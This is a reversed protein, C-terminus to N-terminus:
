RPSRPNGACAPVQQRSRHRKSTSGRVRFTSVVAELRRLLVPDDGSGYRLRMYLRSVRWIEPAIDPRLQAIRSAYDRPGEHQRRHLGARALRSCYRRYATGIRDDPRQRATLKPLWWAAAAILALSAVLLLLLSRARDQPLDLARLLGLQSAADFGVVWDNWSNNVADWALALPYLWHSGGRVLLPLDADDPLAAALGSEIRQPAVAATPDVRVWGRGTIWVESWAHADSQRVIWYDGLPNAEGGQYGTVVRAPIGAARMLLTFSSAYLECFGRRSRFLFQDNPHRGLVPPTLTYVFPQERFMALARQVIQMPALGQQQWAMGLARTRPDEDDPYRLTARRQQRNLTSQFGFRLYSDQRYRLLETVDHNSLLQRSATMRANPPTSAPMDLAFLWRGQHPELNVTYRTTPGEPILPQPSGTDDTYVTWRGSRYDQLVPGRWYLDPRAPVPSLFRVRFAVAASQSLESISGPSMSDSVGTTATAGPAPIGWLPGPLRPVLLFLVVAVPIAQVVMGASSRLQQRTTIPSHRANLMLAGNLVTVVTLGYVMSLPSQSYFFWTLALLYGLLVAMIVDRQNRTELLKLASMVVLLATGGERMASWDHTLAVAVSAALTAIALSWRSPLATGRGAARWRWLAALAFLPPIWVALHLLHPAIALTLGALLWNLPPQRVATCAVMVQKSM